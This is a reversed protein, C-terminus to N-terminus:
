EGTREQDWGHRNTINLCSFFMLKRSSNYMLDAMVVRNSFHIM